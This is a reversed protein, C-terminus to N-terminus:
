NLNFYQKLWQMENDALKRMGKKEKSILINGSKDIKAKSMALWNRINSMAWKDYAVIYEDRLDEIYDLNEHTLKPLSPEKSAPGEKIKEILIKKINIM